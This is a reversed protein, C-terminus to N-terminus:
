NRIEAIVNELEEVITNLEEVLEERVPTATKYGAEYVHYLLSQEDHTLKHFAYPMKAFEKIHCPIENYLDRVEKM